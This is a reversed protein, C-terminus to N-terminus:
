LGGSLLLGLLTLTAVITLVALIIVLISQWSFPRPGPAPTPTRGPSSNSNFPAGALGLNAALAQSFQGANHYRHGPDLHMARQIVADVPRPLASNAQSPPRFQGNVIQGAIEPRSGQFAPQGVLLEYCTVGLAYIDTRADIHGARVQEPAMYRPTGLPIGPLTLRAEGMVLALGFDSLAARRGDRTLLINSPKIDRHIVGRSHAYDVANAIQDIIQVVLRPDLPRGGLLLKDLSQGDIYELVLFPVGEVDSATYVRNIYRHQLQYLARASRHFRRISDPDQRMDPNMMKIAVIRNHKPDWARYVRAMGGQGALAQVQYRGISSPHSPPTPM